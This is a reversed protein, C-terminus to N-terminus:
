RWLKWFRKKPAAQKPELAYFSFSNALDHRMGSITRFLEVPVEFYFDVDDVDDQSNKAEERLTAVTAAITDPADGTVSLHDLGYEPNHAVSWVQKGGKFFSTSCFMTTECVDCALLSIDNSIRIYDAESLSGKRWNQWILYSSENISAGSFQEENYADETSGETFGAADLIAAKSFERFYLMSCRFGM